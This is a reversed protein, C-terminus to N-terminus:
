NSALIGANQASVTVHERDNNFSNAVGTGYTAPTVRDGNDDNLGYFDASSGTLVRVNDTGGQNYANVTDFLGTAGDEVSINSGSGNLGNDYIDTDYAEMRSDSVGVFGRDQNDHLRCNRLIVTSQNHPSAGDDENHTLDCDVLEILSKYRAGAGDGTSGVVGNSQFNSKRGYATSGHTVEIGNAQCNVFDSAYLDLHAGNRAHVGHQTSGYVRVNRLGLRGGEVEIVDSARPIEIQGSAPEGINVYLRNTGSDWWFTGTAANVEAVSTKKELANFNGAGDPNARDWVVDFDVTETRYYTTGTDLTWGSSPNDSGRIAVRNDSGDSKAAITVDRGSISLTSSGLSFVEASTNVLVITAVNPMSLACKITAVPNSEDAGVKYNTNAGTDQDVYVTRTGKTYFEEAAVFVNAGMLYTHMHETPVTADTTGLGDVTEYNIGGCRLFEGRSSATTSFTGGGFGTDEAYIRCGNTVMSLARDCNDPSACSYLKLTADQDLRYASQGSTSADHPTLGRLVVDCGIIRFADSGASTNRVLLAGGGSAQITCSIDITTSLYDTGTYVLVIKDGASIQGLAYILTAFPSARTGPNADSGTSNNVWYTQM